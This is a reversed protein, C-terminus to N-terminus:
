QSAAIPWQGKVVPWRYTDELCYLMATAPKKPNGLGVGFFLQRREDQGDRQIVVRPSSFLRLEQRADRAVEFTWQVAGSDPNLCCVRGDSAAAYVGTCDGCSSCGVLAPSTVVPSGLDQKWTIQGDKRNLCYLHRDRSGFYVHRRDVAPKDHVADPVDTRWLTAGSRADLCLLAGAPKVDSRLLDGNGIGFFVQNGLVTPSGFAPLKSETRWIPNGTATDLCFLFYRDGYGSGGYLRNGVVAPSTDVHLGEFHWVEKGDAANLCYVGDDGAGFFVKGDAVCPSSETHSKTPFAWLKRGTDATLCYLKCSSDQHYGEGVYLRGDALCPSSFIQKLNGEDDFSWLQKGTSRDLCYVTGYAQFGAGHAAAVYVRDGDILPTSDITGPDEAKFKWAVGKLQSVMEEDASAAPTANEAIPLAKLSVDSAGIAVCAFALAALMSAEMTLTPRISPGSSSAPSRYLLYLSGAWVVIWMVLFEKWPADLLIGRGFCYPVLILGILSLVRLVLAEGRPPVEEILGAQVAKRNRSWSWALGALTVLAMMFWLAPQSGFWYDKISGELWSHLLYMLSTISAVTFFVMWRRLVDKPKGFLTPFLMALIALPGGIAVTPIVAFIPGGASRAGKKDSPADGKPTVEPGLGPKEKENPEPPEKKGALGDTIVQKLEATTGKFTRRLYPECHLFAWTVKAPEDGIHGIMQFWTGNTYCFATYRKGKKSSFVIVPMDKALRRLMASTHKDKAAEDDGKLNVPMRTFPAKAKLNEDVQLIVAPKDPDVSEVKAIFILQEATLVEKLPTLRTIVAPAPQSFILLLAGGLVMGSAWAFRRQMM